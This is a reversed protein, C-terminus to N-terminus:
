ALLEKLDDQFQKDILKSKKQYRSIRNQREKSPQDSIHISTGVISQMAAAWDRSELTNVLLVYQEFDFMTQIEQHSDCDSAIAPMGLCASDLVPIGFGEVLSPSLLALANLYLDLKTSENIYGTLIVGPENKVIEKVAQSYNDQKLKGTVCLRIGKEGLNSEAYAQVLFLLNKRPEVSSNFLLYQFPLLNKRQKQRLLHSVPLLDVVHEPDETLWKPFRLSPPQVVVRELEQSKNSSRGNTLVNTTKLVHKKFKEATSRSVYIRRTPLCAQLRHSFVLTNDSSQAYELPILDHVTQTFSDVNLPKLNLPCSTLFADFGNLDILVPKQHKLLAAISAALFVNPACLLGDVYQLYSLREHRTYPNDFLDKLRIQKIARRRYHRPRYIFEGVKGLIHRWRGIKKIIGIKNELWHKTRNQEGQALCDLVRASYIIMRTKEPLFRIGANWLPADFQTLLWVEAGAEKLSRILAKSYAAIGRHESQELDLATVVIRKGKLNSPLQRSLTM